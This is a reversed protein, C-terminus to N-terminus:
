NVAKSENNLVKLLESKVENTTQIMNKLWHLQWAITKSSQYKDAWVKYDDIYKFYADFYEKFISKTKKTTLYKYMFSNQHTVLFDTIPDAIETRGGSREATFILMVEKPMKPQIPEEEPFDFVFSTDPTEPAKQMLAWISLNESIDVNKITEIIEKTSLEIKDSM